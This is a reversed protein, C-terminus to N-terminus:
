SNSLCEGKKINAKPKKKNSIVDTNELVVSKGKKMASRLRIM